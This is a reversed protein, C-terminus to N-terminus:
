SSGYTRRVYTFMGALCEKATGERKCEEEDFKALLDRGLLM